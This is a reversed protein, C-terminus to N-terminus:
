KKGSRARARAYETVDATLNRQFDYSEKHCMVDYRKKKKKLGPIQLSKERVLDVHSFDM